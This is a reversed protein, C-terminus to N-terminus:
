DGLFHYAGKHFRRTKPNMWDEAHYIPIALEIARLYNPDGEFDTTVVLFDADVPLKKEVISGIETIRKSAEEVNYLLRGSETNGAFAMVKPRRPNYLPNTILDGDVMPINHDNVLTISVQSTHPYVRKVEIEGKWFVLGGEEMRFVRFKMGKVIRDVSGLNIYAYSEQVDPDIIKGHVELPDYIIEERRRYDEIDAIVQSRQTKMKDMIEEHDAEITEQESEVESTANQLESIRAQSRQEVEELRAQFEDREKAIERLKAAFAERIPQIRKLQENKRIEAVKEGHKAQEWIIRAVALSKLADEASKELTDFVPDDMKEPVDRNTYSFHNAGDPVYKGDMYEQQFERVRFQSAEKDRAYQAARKGREDEISAIVTEAAGMFEDFPMEIAAGAIDKGWGAIKAIEVVEKQNPAIENVKIQLIEHDIAEMKREIRDREAYFLVGTIVAILALFVCIIVWVM